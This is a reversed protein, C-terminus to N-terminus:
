LEEKLPSPPVDFAQWAVGAGLSCSVGERYMYISHASGDPKGYVSVVTGTGDVGAFLPVQGTAALRAHLETTPMCNTATAREPQANLFAALFLPLLHLM